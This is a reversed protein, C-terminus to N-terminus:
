IVKRGLVLLLTKQVVVVLLEALLSLLEELELDAPCAQGVECYAGSRWRCRYWHRDDQNEIRLHRAEQRLAAALEWNCSKGVRGLDVGVVISGVEWEEMGVAKNEAAVRQEVAICALDCVPVEM